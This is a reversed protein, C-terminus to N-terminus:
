ESEKGDRDIHEELHQRISRAIARGLDVPVANGILRGVVTFYVEEEPEVFEYDEPFSQLLAAERLSIARDQEPHGFRGNGFGYCQTTITPAPEDWKMRGYVSAYGRGSKRRHCDAVLDKPWDRWTGGPVSAQIRRLNLESLGSAKHLRDHRDTEGAEIPEMDGIKTEVTPYEHPSYTPEVLEIEGFRSAFLVLRIREQPVGYNPCFVDEYDLVHYDAGKLREVFRRYVRGQKYTVLDPVNEMSVVDPRVGCILDAFRDLLKWKEQKDPKKKTYKSYPQCPACGILIKTHGEPYWELIEDATVDEIPKEVFKAGPNNTEFPYQCHPDVDYGAVVDFEELVFGHTLAGAGCFLDVVSCNEM